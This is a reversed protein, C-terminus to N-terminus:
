KVDIALTLERKEILCREPTCVSFDFRGAIEKKGGSEPTFPVALSVRMKELKVGDKIVPGPYKLGASGEKVKFKYPYKDNVKFPPKADLVIEVTGQQGAKYDGKPQITLDFNSESVKSAAPVAESSDAPAAAPASKAQDPSQEPKGATAAVATPTEVGPRAVANQPEAGPTSEKSCAWAAASGLLAVAVVERWGRRRQLPGRRQDSMGGDAIVVVWGEGSSAEANMM